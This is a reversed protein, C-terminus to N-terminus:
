SDDSKSKRSDGDRGVIIVIASLGSDSLNHGLVGGVTREGSGNHLVVLSVSDSLGGSQGDAVARASAGLGVGGNSRRDAGTPTTSV